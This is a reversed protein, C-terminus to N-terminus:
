GPIVIEPPRHTSDGKTPIISAQGLFTKKTEESAFSEIVNRYYSPAIIDDLSLNDIHSPLGDGQM